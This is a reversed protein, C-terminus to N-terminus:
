ESTFNLFRNLDSSHVWAVHQNEKIFCSLIVRLLFVFDDTQLFRYNFCTEKKLNEYNEHNTNNHTKKKKLLTLDTKQVSSQKLDSCVNFSHM